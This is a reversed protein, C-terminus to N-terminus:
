YKNYYKKKYKPKYENNIKLVKKRYDQYWRSWNINKEQDSDVSENSNNPGNEKM